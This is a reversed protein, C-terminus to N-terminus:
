KLCEFGELVDNNLIFQLRLTIMSNHLYEDIIAIGYNKFIIGHTSCKVNQSQLYINIYRVLFLFIIM